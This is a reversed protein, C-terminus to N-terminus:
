SIKEFCILFSRLFLPLSPSLLVSPNCLSLSPEAKEQRDMFVFPSIVRSLHGAECATVFPAVGFNLGEAGELRVRTVVITLANGTRYQPWCSLHPPLVAITEEDTHQSKVTKVWQQSDKGSSDIHWQDPCSRCGHPKSPSLIAEEEHHKGAFRVICEREQQRHGRVGM